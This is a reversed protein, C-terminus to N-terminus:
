MGAEGLLEKGKELMFQYAADYDNPVDGDLIAERIATKIKGVLPGPKLDFTQMILEGSIPPQWNRLQDREEVEAIREEVQDYNKLYRAHKQENATTIDARCLTLLDDLDDGADFILRRIASDSVEEAALSIPRQHLAVLKKVYKMKQDLPLKLRKFIKPVMRSGVDEHGHFTWGAGDEFRKTRPKGIDHLLAAWRLWLNNTMAAANDLVKLTHFFNDKHGVGERIEVGKMAELEPLVYSLLGTKLLMVFGKSPRPALMMKNLEESVREASIIKLRGANRTIAEFTPPDITFDLVAAFRIARLMRLPDDSFTVDPDLPTRLLGKRLDEEGGFPDVLLGEEGPNLSFSMANITFDRRRQDDELTGDEVLPKRSDARYSERRAGVFEVEYDEWKVLATGFQAYIVVDRAGIEKAFAEAIEAGSGVTVLDIDKCPRGLLYDRAYGGVAYLPRGTQRAAARLADFVPGTVAEPYHTKTQPM